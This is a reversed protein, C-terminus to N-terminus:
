LGIWGLQEYVGLLDESFWAEAIKGGAIRYLGMGHWKAFKNTPPIGNFSGVNWGSNTFYLTVKDGNPVIDLIELHMDKFAGGISAKLSAKYADIGNLTTESYHWKMDKTWLEDVKEINGENIVEAVFTKVLAINALQENTQAIKKTNLSRFLFDIASKRAAIAEPITKYVTFAHWMGEAVDLQAPVDAAKLKWYLRSSNSLFLDRTSTNIITAPFDSTYTGYVPSLLPNKLRPDSKDKIGTFPPIYLKDGQNKLGLLDRGDNAVYSDGVGSVDLSPSLLAISNIMPLSEEKAKLLMGMMHGCGSSTSYGVIKNPDYQGVLYKYVSLAENLATPFKAEPALTYDLSYTKLGLEHAMLLGTQDTASGMVYGGGHIYYAIKDRNEPKLTQPTIVHVKVGDILTDTITPKLEDMNQALQVKELQAFQNRIKLIMNDSPNILPIRIDKFTKLTDVAAQSMSAQQSETMPFKSACGTTFLAAFLSASFLSRTKM